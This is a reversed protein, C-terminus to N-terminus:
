KNITSNDNIISSKSTHDIFPTLIDKNKSITASLTDAYKIYQNKLRNTDAWKKDFDSIYLSLKDLLLMDEFTKIIQKSEELIHLAVLPITEPSITIRKSTSRIGNNRRSNNYDYNLNTLNNFDEDTKAIIAKHIFVCNYHLARIASTYRLYNVVEPIVEKSLPANAIMQSFTPVICIIYKDTSVLKKIDLTKASLIEECTRNTSPEYTQMYPM